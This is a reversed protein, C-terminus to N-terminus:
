GSAVAYLFFELFFTAIKMSTILEDENREFVYVEAMLKIAHLGVEECYNM